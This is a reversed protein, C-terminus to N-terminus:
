SGVNDLLMFDHDAGSTRLGTRSRRRKGPYVCEDFLPCRECAPSASRCIRRGFRIMNTHLSYAKGKPVLGRMALFTKEPTPCAEVIGLRNCVRHVHTDVPFVDRGLSFLLVCAATKVGVGDLGTLLEIVDEDPAARLDELSYRGYRDRISKLVKQIRPGKQNAMGGVRIAARLSAPRAAAVAHWTRFRRRLERYARHSNKDSTNQSLITAILMSLPPPLRREQRPSGLHRELTRALRAVRSKRRRDGTVVM